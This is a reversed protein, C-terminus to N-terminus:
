KKPTSKFNGLYKGVEVKTATGNKVKAELGEDMGGQASSQSDDTIGDPKATPKITPILSRAFVKMGSESSRVQSAFSPDTAELKAIEQELIDTPIDPYEKVVSALNKQYQMQEEIVDLGLMKKAQAIDDNSPQAPAQQMMPAQAQAQQQAMQQQAMKQQAMQEPTIQPANNDFM